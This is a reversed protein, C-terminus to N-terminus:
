AAVTFGAAERLQTRGKQVEEPLPSYRVITFDSGAKTKTLSADVRVLRGALPQHESIVLAFVEETVEDPNKGYAAAIFAKVNGPAADHKTLNYVQSMASGAPRGDVESALIDMEVIILADNKRSQMSKVATVEVAPYVGPLVYVGGSNVKSGAVLAAINSM